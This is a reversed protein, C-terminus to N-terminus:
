TNPIHCLSPRCVASNIESSMGEKFYSMIRRQWKSHNCLMWSLNIFSHTRVMPPTVDVASFRYVQHMTEKNVVFGVYDPQPSFGLWRPSIGLGQCVGRRKRKLWKDNQCAFCGFELCSSSETLNSNVKLFEEKM